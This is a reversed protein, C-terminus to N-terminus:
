HHLTSIILNYVLLDNEIRCIGRFRFLIKQGPGIGSQKVLTKCGILDDLASTSLLM